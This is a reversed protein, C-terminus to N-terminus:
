IKIRINYSVYVLNIAMKIMMIIFEFEPMFFLLWLSIRKHYGPSINNNNNNNYKGLVKENQKTKSDDCM